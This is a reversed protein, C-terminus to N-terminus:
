DKELRERILYLVKLKHVRTGICMAVSEVIEAASIPNRETQSAGHHVPNRDVSLIQIFLASFSWRRQDQYSSHSVGFLSPVRFNEV